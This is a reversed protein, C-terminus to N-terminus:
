AMTQRLLGIAFGGTDATNQKYAATHEAAKPTNTHCPTSVGTSRVRIPYCM